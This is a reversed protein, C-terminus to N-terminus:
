CVDCFVRNGSPLLFAKSGEKSRVKNSVIAVLANRYKNGCFRHIAKALVRNTEEAELPNLDRQV